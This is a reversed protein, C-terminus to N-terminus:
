PCGPRALASGPRRRVAGAAPRFQRTGDPFTVERIEAEAEYGPVWSRRLVLGFGGEDLVAHEDSAPAADDPVEGRDPDDPLATDGVDRCQWALAAAGPPRVRTLRTAM